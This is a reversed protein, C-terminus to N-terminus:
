EVRWSDLADLREEIVWLTCVPYPTMAGVNRWAPLSKSVKVLVNPLCVDPVWSGASIYLSHGPWRMRGLPFCVYIASIEINICHSIYTDTISFRKYWLCRRSEDM